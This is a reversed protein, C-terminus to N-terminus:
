NGFGYFLRKEIKKDFKFFFYNKTSPACHFNNKADTNFDFEWAIDSKIIPADFKFSSFDEFGKKTLLDMLDEIITLEFSNKSKFNGLESLIRQWTIYGFKINGLLKRKITDSYIQHCSSNKGILILIKPKNPAIRELLRGERALQHCSEKQIKDTISNDIADDSSLTSLFKVEIGIALDDFNILVDIEAEKEKKWFSINQNWANIDISDFINSLEPPYICNKLIQNLGRNFSIYRLNGFFNGTLEDELRESLNSNSSSVKGYIEALM